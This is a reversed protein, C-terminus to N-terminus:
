NFNDIVTNTQQNIGISPQRYQETMGHHGIM